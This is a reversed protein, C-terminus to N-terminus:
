YSQHHNLFTDDTIEQLRDIWADLCAGQEELYSHQDYVMIEGYLKHGLLIEAIHPTTLTSFNTRATRRLDHMSWHKMEYNDHKRLWQMIGYPLSIVSSSSMQKHDTTNTFTDTDNDSLEFAEDIITQVRAPIPRILSRGTSKGMKHNEPPVTWIGSKFDSRKSQRMEGNRCGYIMVLKIFLKNKAASRSSNIALVAKRIEEDSLTRITPTSSINLDNKASINALYNSELLDRRVSWNFLQKTNVLIRKSISPSKVAVSELLGMWKIASIKEYPLKGFEPFVYIQFSRLILQHQSKKILCYSQYWDMFLEEFSKSNANESIELKKSIRPDHGLEVEAKFRLTEERAKKLSILPYSGLGVRHQKKKYRFRLQFVVKGKKSVRVSMGDRDTKEFVESKNKRYVSKLWADTIAM